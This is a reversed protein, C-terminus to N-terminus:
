RPEKLFTGLSVAELFILVAVLGRRIGLSVLLVASILVVVVLLVTVAGSKRPAAANELGASRQSMVLPMPPSAIEFAGVVVLSALSGFILVEVPILRFLLCGNVMANLLSFLSQPRASGPRQWASELATLLLGQLSPLFLIWLGNDTYLFSKDFWWAAALMAVYELLCVIFLHSVDVTRRIRSIVVFPMVRVASVVYQVPSEYREFLDGLVEERCAPPLLWGVIRELAGPPSPTMPDFARKAGVNVPPGRGNV